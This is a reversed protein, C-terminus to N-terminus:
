SPSAHPPPSPPPPPPSAHLSAHPAQTAPCRLSCDRRVWHDFILVVHTDIDQREQLRIVHQNGPLRPPTSSSAPKFPSPKGRHRGPPPDYRTAPTPLSPQPAQTHPSVPRDMRANRVQHGAVATLAQVMAALRQVAEMNGLSAQLLSSISYSLYLTATAPPQKKKNRVKPVFKLCVKEGTAANEAVALRVGMAGRGMVKGIEYMGLTKPLNGGADKDVGSRRASEPRSFREGATQALFVIQGQRFQLVDIVPQGFADFARVAPPFLELQKSAAALWDNFNSNADFPIPVGVSSDNAGNLKVVVSATPSLEPSSANAVGNSM